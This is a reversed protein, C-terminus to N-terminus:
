SAESFIHLSIESTPEAFYNRPVHLTQLKDAEQLLGNLEPLDEKAIQDDLKLGKRWIVQQLIRLRITM